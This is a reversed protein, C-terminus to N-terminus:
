EVAPGSGSIIASLRNEILAAVEPTMRAVLFLEGDYLRAAGPVNVLDRYIRHTKTVMLYRFTGARVQALLNAAEAAMVEHEVPEEGGGPEASFGLRALLSRKQFFGDTFSWHGCYVRIGGLGPLIEGAGIDTLVAPVPMGADSRIRQIVQFMESPQRQRNQPLSIRALVLLPSAVSFVLILALVVGACRRQRLHEEIGHVALGGLMALPITCGGCLKSYSSNLVVLVMACGFAWIAPFAFRSAFLRSGLMGAGIAALIWLLFFGGFWDGFRTGLTAAAIESWVPQGSARVNYALPLIMGAALCGLVLARRRCVPASLRLLPSVGALLGYASLLMVPEYPRIAALLLAAVAILAAERGSFGRSTDEARVILAALLAVLAVAMANYPFIFFSAAPYLDFYSFDPGVEGVRLIGGLGSLGLLERIWSVGGGGLALWVAAATAFRGLGLMRATWAVSVLFLPLALLSLINLVALPPVASLAAMRGALLFLPNILLPAHGTTTYLDSFRWAGNRAQEAWSVYSLSDDPNAAIGYTLMAPAEPIGPPFGWGTVFTRFGVLLVLLLLCIALVPRNMAKRETDM